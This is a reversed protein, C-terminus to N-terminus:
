DEGLGNIQLFATNLILYIHNKDDNTLKRSGTINLISIDNVFIFEILEEPTEPNVCIPKNFKESFFLSSRTILSDLEGYVLTANSMRINTKLCEFCNDERSPTNKVKLACSLATNLALKEVGEQGGSVITIM